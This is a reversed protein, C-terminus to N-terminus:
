SIGMHVKKYDFLALLDFFPIDDPKHAACPLAGGVM